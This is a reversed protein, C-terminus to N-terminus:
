RQRQRSRDTPASEGYVRSAVLVEEAPIGLLRATLDATRRTARDGPDGTCANANGSNTVVARAHGGSAELAAKSYTIPAAQVLNRTFVAAAQWLGKM